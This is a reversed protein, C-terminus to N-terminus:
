EENNMIDKIFAISRALGEDSEILALYPELIVPGDYNVARLACTFRVFDFAGEGPLCLKGAENWDCIHVNCLNEGMALVFEVPDCGAKMAQKIDLTFRVDPLLRKAELVRQPTTLQCWCVNEWSATIGRPAGEEAIIAIMETNRGMDWPLVECRPSHRGHHVYIKAGLAAGADMVRRLVDRADQRQRPSRAILANEFPTGLPHISTCPIEGLNRRVKAGFDTTYESQTQLFVEACDLKLKAMEAAAEETEWRGYFAATSLGVKM